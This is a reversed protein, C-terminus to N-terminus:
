LNQQAPFVTDQLARDGGLAISLPIGNINWNRQLGVGASAQYQVNVLWTTGPQYQFGSSWNIVYANRLNPDRWTANRSGFNAGTYPVTGDANVVYRIPGPGNQLQFQHRPDGVPQLINFNGAYEDFGGAGASDVTMMGFSARFV